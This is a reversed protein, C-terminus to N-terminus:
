NALQRRNRMPRSAFRCNEVCLCVCRTFDCKWACLLSPRHDRSIAAGGVFRDAARIREGKKERGTTERRTRSALESLRMGTARRADGSLHFRKRGGPPDLAGRRRPLFFGIESIFIVAAFNVSCDAPHQIRSTQKCAPTENIHVRADGALSRM